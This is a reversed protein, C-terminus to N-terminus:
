SYLTCQFNPPKHNTLYARPASLCLGVPMCVFLSTWREYRSLSAGAAGGITYDTPNLNASNPSFSSLMQWKWVVICHSLWRRAQLKALYEGIKIKKVSLSETIFRKKIHNNVIGGYRSYSAVSRWTVVDYNITLRKNESMLTECNLTAVCALQPPITIVWKSCIKQLILLLIKFIPCSKVSNHGHTQKCNKLGMRHVHEKM